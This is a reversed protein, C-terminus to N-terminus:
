NMKFIYTITGGQIVNDGPTFRAKKAAEIAAATLQSNNTTSGQARYSATKVNGYDDVTIDVIVKGSVNATYSPKPLSGVVSRDKLVAMREVGDDGGGQAAGEQAGSESGQNGASQSEGQSTSTSSEKRGPFLAQQNVVRNEVVTDRKEQSEETTTQEQPKSVVENAELAIDQNPDTLIEEERMEQPTPPTAAVDTALLDEDGAGDEDQGFQVLIGMDAEPTQAVSFSLTLMLTATTAFYAVVAVIAWRHSERNEPNYYHM